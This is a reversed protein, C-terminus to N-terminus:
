SEILQSVDVTGVVLQNKQFNRIVFIIKWFKM